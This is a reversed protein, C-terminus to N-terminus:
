QQRFDISDEISGCTVMASHYKPHKNGLYPNSIERSNTIWYGAQDGGFAMPCKDHYIVDQDYHVTRILNYLSESLSYFAHRKDTIPSNGAIGKAQSIIEASFSKATMVIGSDAKLDQYPVKAALDGLNVAFAAAGTSDWNVLADKLKYYGELLNNFPTNFAPSNKSIALPQDKIEPAQPAPKKFIFYGAVGLVVLAILILGAKM